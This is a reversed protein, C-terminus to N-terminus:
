IIASSIGLRCHAAPCAGYVMPNRLMRIFLYTYSLWTVAERVNTVTGSVIEANLHDPLAQVFNSEIPMQACIGCACLYQAIALWRQLAECVGPSHAHRRLPGTSRAHHHACRRWLHRVTRLVGDCSVTAEEMEVSQTNVDEDEAAWVFSCVHVCACVQPRGARGFIQGVDLMGLDVFGGREPNYVQTGKIIVTHAPLNVGWALTSTCM